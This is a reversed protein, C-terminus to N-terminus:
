PTTNGVCEMKDRSGARGYTMISAAARLGSPMVGALKSWMKSALAAWAMPMKVSRKGTSNSDRTHSVIALADAFASSANRLMCRPQRWGDVDAPRSTGAVSTTSTLVWRPECWLRQGQNAVRGRCVTLYGRHCAVKRLAKYAVCEPPARKPRHQDFWYGVLIEGTNRRGQTSRTNVEHQGQTYRICLVQELTRVLYDCDAGKYPRPLVCQTRLDCVLGRRSAHTPCLRGSRARREGVVDQYSTPSSPVGVHHQAWTAISVLGAAAARLTHIHQLAYM